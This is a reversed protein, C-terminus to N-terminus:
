EGVLLICSASSSNSLYHKALKSWGGPLVGSIAVLTNFATTGLGMALTTVNGVALMKFGASIM